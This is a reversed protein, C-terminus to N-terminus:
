ELEIPEAKIRPWDSAERLKKLETEEHYEDCENAKENRRKATYLLGKPSTRLIFAAEALTIRGRNYLWMVEPSWKLYIIEGDSDREWTCAWWPLGDTSVTEKVMGHCQPCELEAVFSFEGAHDKVFKQAKEMYKDLLVIADSEEQKKESEYTMQKEVEIIRKHSNQKGLQLDRDRAFARPNEAELIGYRRATIRGMIWETLLAGEKWGKKLGEEKWAHFLRLEEDSIAVGNSEDRPILEEEWTRMKRRVTDATNDRAAAEEGRRKKFDDELSM